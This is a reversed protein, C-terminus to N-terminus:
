GRPRAEDPTTELVTRSLRDHWARREADVCTWLFGAGGAAWSLIAVLFRVAGQEWSVPGGRLARVRIHWARMGLTQGGHRWFWGFYSYSVALLYLLYAPNGPSIAQGGTFPLLLATAAFLVAFLLFADYAAAALRRPLGM